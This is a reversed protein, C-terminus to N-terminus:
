VEMNTLNYNGISVEENEVNWFTLGREFITKLIDLDNKPISDGSIECYGMKIFNFHQRIKGIKFSSSYKNLPYGYKKYFLSLNEMITDDTRYEYLKIKNGMKMKNFSFDNGLSKLTRPTKLMDKITALRNAENMYDSNEKIESLQQSALNYNQSNITNNNNYNVYTSTLGSIGGLINGTFLRALNGFVGTITESKNIMQSQQFQLTASDTKQSYSLQNELSNNIFNQNFSASSSAWFQSYASSAVPALMPFDNVIGELEGTWDGKYGEVYLLYKSNQNINTKVKVKIYPIGKSNVPLYQPKILLPPNFGDYLIYYRYPYFNLIDESIRLDVTTEFLVKEIVPNTTIRYVYPITNNPKGYKESDFLSKVLSLDNTEVFPNYCVTQISPAYGLISDNGLSENLYYYYLCNLDGGLKNFALDDGNYIAM